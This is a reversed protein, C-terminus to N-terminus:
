YKDSLINGKFLPSKIIRFARLVLLKLDILKRNDRFKFLLIVLKKKGIVLITVSLFCFRYLTAVTSSNWLIDKTRTTTCWVMIDVIIITAFPLIQKFDTTLRKASTFQHLSWYNKFARIISMSKVGFFLTLVKPNMFAGIFFTRIIQRIKFSGRFVQCRLILM